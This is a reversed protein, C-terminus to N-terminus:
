DVIEFMKDNSSWSSQTLNYYTGAELGSLDVTFYGNKTKEVPVTIVEYSDQVWFPIDAYFEYETWETGHYGGISFVEDKEASVISFYAPSYGEQALIVSKELLYEDYNEGNIEIEESDSLNYRPMGLGNISYPARNYYSLGNFIPNAFNIDPAYQVESTIKILTLQDADYYIAIPENKSFVPIRADSSFSYIFIHGGDDYGSRDTLAYRVKKFKYLSDNTEGQMLDYVDDENKEARYRFSQTDTYDNEEYNDNYDDYQDDENYDDYQDDENYEVYTEKDDPKPSIDSDTDDDSSGCGYFVSMMLSAIVLISVLKKM